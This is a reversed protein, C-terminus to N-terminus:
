AQAQAPRHGARQDVLSQQESNRRTGFAAIICTICVLNYQVKHMVLGGFSAEALVNFFIAAPQCWKSVSVDNGSVLKLWAQRRATFDDGM